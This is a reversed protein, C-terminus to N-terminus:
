NVTIVFTNQATLTGTAADVARVTLVYKDPTTGTAADGSTAPASGITATGGCAVMGGLALGCLTVSLMTLARRRGPLGFCLLCALMAGGRVASWVHSVSADAAATTGAAITTVTLTSLVPQSNTIKVAAPNFSCKPINVDGSSTGAV